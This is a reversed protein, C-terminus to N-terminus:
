LRDNRSKIGGSGGGNAPETIKDSIKEPQIADTNVTDVVQSGPVETVDEAEVSAEALTLTTGNVTTKLTLRYTDGEKVIARHEPAALADQMLPTGMYTLTYKLGDATNAATVTGDEGVTYLDAATFTMDVTIGNM